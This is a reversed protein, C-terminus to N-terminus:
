AAARWVEPCFLSMGGEGGVAAVRFAYTRGVIMGTKRTSFKGGMYLLSFTGAVNNVVETIELMYSKAGVVPDWRIIM